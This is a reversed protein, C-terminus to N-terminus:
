VTGKHVWFKEHTSDLLQVGLRMVREQNLKEFILSNTIEELVGVYYEFFIKNFGEDGETLLNIEVVQKSGINFTIIEQSEYEHQWSPFSIHAYDVYKFDPCNNCFSGFHDVGFLTKRKLSDVYHESHNKTDFNVTLWGAWPCLYIGVMAITEQPKLRSFSDISSSLLNIFEIKSEM